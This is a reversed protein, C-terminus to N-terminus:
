LRRVARFKNAFLGNGDLISPGAVDGMTPGNITDRSSMFRHKGQSDKGMYFGSHDLGPEGDTEFFVIDGPLMNETVRDLSGPKDGTDEELLVGPAHDVMGQVQRQLGDGETENKGFMPYGMRYGLVIRLFGSCDLANKDKKEPPDKKKDPHSVTIEMFDNYDGGVERLGDDGMPGFDADGAYRLGDDDVKDEAGRFYQTGIELADPEESDKNEALWEGFWEGKEGSKKWQHPLVRVWADTTVKADTAGPEELTREPGFVVATRGKDTLRAVVDGSDKEVVETGAPNSVRRFTHEDLVTDPDHKEQEASPAGTAPEEGGPAFRMLALAALLVLSIAIAVLPVANSRVQAWAREQHGRRRGRRESEAAGPTTM